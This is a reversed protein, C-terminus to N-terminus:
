DPRSPDPPMRGRLAERVGDPVPESAWNPNDKLADNLTDRDTQAARRAEALTRHTQILIEQQRQLEASFREAAERAGRQWASEAHNWGIKFALFHTAM